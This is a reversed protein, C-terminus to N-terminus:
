MHLFDQVSMHTTDADRTSAGAKLKAIVEEFMNKYTELQRLASFDKHLNATVLLQPPKVVMLVDYV